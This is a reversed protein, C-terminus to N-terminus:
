EPPKYALWRLRADEGDVDLATVVQSVHSALGNAFKAHAAWFEELAVVVEKIHPDAETYAPVRVTSITEWRIRGRNMGTTTAM